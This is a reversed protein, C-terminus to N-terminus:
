PIRLFLQVLNSHMINSLTSTTLILGNEIESIMRKAITLRYDQTNDQFITNRLWDISNETGILEASKKSCIAYMIENDNENYARVGYNKFDLGVDSSDRFIGNLGSVITGIELKVDQSKLSYAFFSVMLSDENM